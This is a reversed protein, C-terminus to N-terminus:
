SKSKTDLSSKRVIQISHKHYKNESPIIVREHKDSWPKTAIATWKLLHVTKGTSKLKM